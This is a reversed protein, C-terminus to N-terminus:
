IWHFESLYQSADTFVQVRLAMRPGQDIPMSKRRVALSSRSQIEIEQDRAFSLEVQNLEHLPEAVFRQMARASVGIVDM